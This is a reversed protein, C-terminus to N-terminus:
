SQFIVNTNGVQFGYDSIVTAFKLKFSLQFAKAGGVSTINIHSKIICKELVVM